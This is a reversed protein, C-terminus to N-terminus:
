IIYGGRLTDRQAGGLYKLNLLGRERKSERESVCVCVSLSVCLLPLLLRASLWM